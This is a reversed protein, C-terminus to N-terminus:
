HDGIHCFVISVLHKSLTLIFGFSVRIIKLMCAVTYIDTGYKCDLNLFQNVINLILTHQNVQPVYMCHLFVICLREYTPCTM